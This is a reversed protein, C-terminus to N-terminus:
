KLTLSKTLKVYSNIIEREINTWKAPDKKMIKEVEVFISEHFAPKPKAELQNKVASTKPARAESKQFSASHNM